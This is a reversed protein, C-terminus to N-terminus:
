VNEVQRRHPAAAPGPEGVGSNFGARGLQHEMARRVRLRLENMARARYTSAAIPQGIRVAITGPRVRWAGVPLSAGSGDITVPVVPVQTEIALWFGGRKFPLLAGTKSRTGEPFVVISVGAKLRAAASKLSGLARARSSRDVLIHKSAWMAWGFLPVYLLERKALWRLQFGKLSQVLVPIDINSQHNAMFIYPQRPDLRELGEVTLSLGGVRLIFWTWFRGIGYVAKGHPDFLGTLITLLATPLTVAAVLAVKLADFM